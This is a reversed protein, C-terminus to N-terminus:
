LIGNLFEKVAIKGGAKYTAQMKLWFNYLSILKSEPISNFTKHGSQRVIIGKVYKSDGPKNILKLYGFVAAICRKRWTDMKDGKPLAKSGQLFNCIHILEDEELEKSSEVGFNTLIEKKDDPTIGKKTCLTHFKRLLKSKKDTTTTM